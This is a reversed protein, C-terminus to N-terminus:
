ATRSTFPMKVSGNVFMTWPIVSYLPTKWRKLSSAFRDVRATASVLIAAECPRNDTLIEIAHSSQIIFPAFHKIEAGIRLTEVQNRYGRLM